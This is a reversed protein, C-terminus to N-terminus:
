KTNLVDYKRLKNKCEDIQYDIDELEMELGAKKRKQDLTKAVSPMKFLDNEVIKRHQGLNSLTQEVRQIEDKNDEIRQYSPFVVNARNAKTDTVPAPRHKPVDAQIFSPKRASLSYM